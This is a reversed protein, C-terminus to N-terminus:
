PWEGPRWVWLGNPTSLEAAEAGMVEEVRNSVAITSDDGLQIVIEEPAAWAARVVALIRECLADRYGIEGWRFTRGAVTVVPHSYANLTPGDFRLQVYDNLVFEVSSLREGLLSVFPTEDRKEGMAGRLTRPREPYM